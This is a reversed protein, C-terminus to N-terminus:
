NEMEIRKPDIEIAVKIYGSMNKDWKLIKFKGRNNRSAIAAAAAIASPDGVAILYDDDCFDALSENLKKIMPAPSLAVRGPALCVNLEGYEMASNFNMMPEFDGTDSNRRMPEQVVFVRSM